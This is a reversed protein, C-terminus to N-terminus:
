WVGMCLPARLRPAAPAVSPGALCSQGAVRARGGEVLRRSMAHSIIIYKEPLLYMKKTDGDLMITAERRGVNKRERVSLLRRLPRPFPALESAQHRANM